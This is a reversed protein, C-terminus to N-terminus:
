YIGPLFRWTRTRYQSYEAFHALLLREEYRSKRELVILLSVLCAIRWPNPDTLLLGLSAIGLGSYMPHRIWRYPGTELLEIKGSPHPMVRLRFIGMTIWAWIAV